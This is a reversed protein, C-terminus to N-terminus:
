VKVQKDESKGSKDGNGLPIQVIIVAILMLFCGLYERGTLTQHLILAGGLVSFVSELSLLISVVAPNSGRQALIQLTYGIGSSFIGLYLISLLCAKIAEFSPKETFLMCIFSLIFAVTFQVFSLKVGSVKESYHDIVMIHVAFILACLIICFDSKGIKLEDTICLFYLGFVALLVSIWTKAPVKKKLFIELIPVIVIYLATIFGAKGASTEALAFQQLNTAATMAIGCLVGGILLDKKTGKFEVGESKETKGLLPMLAFIAVAGVFFRMANFTFPGVYDAGISQAVFALGWIM